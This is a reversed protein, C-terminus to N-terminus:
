KTASKQEYSLSSHILDIDWYEALKKIFLNLPAVIALEKETQSALLFHPNHLLQSKILIYNAWYHPNHEFGEYLFGKADLDATKSPVFWM